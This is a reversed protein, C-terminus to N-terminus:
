VATRRSRRVPWLYEVPKGIAAAVARRAAPSTIHGYLVRSAYPRSIGAKRALDSVDKIGARLLIIKNRTKLDKKTPKTKVPTNKMSLKIM